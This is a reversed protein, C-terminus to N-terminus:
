SIPDVSSSALSPSGLSPSACNPSAPRTAMSLQRDVRLRISSPSSINAFSEFANSANWNMFRAM